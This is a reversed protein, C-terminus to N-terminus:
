KFYAKLENAHAALVSQDENGFRQWVQQCPLLLPSLIVAQRNLYPDCQQMVELIQCVDDAKLKLLRAVDQVEPTQPVMTPPTLQFYLDLIIILMAPTLRDDETLPRFDKEFTEEVEVGEYFESAAGFGTMGRLLRVARELQKPKQSYTNWIREIRPTSLNAIQEMRKHLMQPPLHLEMSLEVMTRSYTPKMGTPKKLYAQMLMLWYDDHWVHKRTM